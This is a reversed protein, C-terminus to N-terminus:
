RRREGAPRGAELSDKAAFLQRKLPVAYRRRLRAAERRRRRRGAARLRWRGPRTPDARLFVHVVAGDGYKEVWVEATGTLAGTVRWRVGELGRDDYATLTLDPFWGRWRAEDCLLRRVAGRDAAIFHEDVLDLM